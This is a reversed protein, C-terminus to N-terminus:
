MHQNEGTVDVQHGSETEVDLCGSGTEVDVDETLRGQKQDIGLSGLDPQISETVQVQGVLLSREARM